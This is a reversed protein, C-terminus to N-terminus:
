SVVTAYIGDTIGPVLAKVASVESRSRSPGEVLLRRGGIHNASDRSV